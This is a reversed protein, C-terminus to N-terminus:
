THVHDFLFKALKTKTIQDSMQLLTGHHQNGYFMRGVGYCVSIRQHLLQFSVQFGDKLVSM